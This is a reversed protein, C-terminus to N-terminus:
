VENALEDFFARFVNADHRSRNGIPEDIEADFCEGTRDGVSVVVLAGDFADALDIVEGAFDRALAFVRALHVVNM